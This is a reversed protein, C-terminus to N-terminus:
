ADPQMLWIWFAERDKALRTAEQFTKGEKRMLKWMDEEWEMGPRGRRRMGEVKTEWVQRPKRNSDMRILQGFWRLERKDVM